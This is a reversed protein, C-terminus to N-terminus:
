THTRQLSSIYRKTNFLAASSECIMSISRFGVNSSSKLVIILRASTSFNIICGTFSEIRHFIIPILRKPAVM